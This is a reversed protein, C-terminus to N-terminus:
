FARDQKRSWPELAEPELKPEYFVTEVTRTEVEEPEPELETGAGGQTLSISKAPPIYILSRICVQLDLDKNVKCICVCGSLPLSDVSSVSIARLTSLTWQVMAITSRSLTEQNRKPRHHQKRRRRTETLPRFSNWHRGTFRSSSLEGFYLTAAM